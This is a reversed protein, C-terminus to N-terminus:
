QESWRNQDFTLLKHGNKQLSLYHEPTDIDRSTGPQLLVAVNLKAQAAAKLHLGYSHVNGFCTAVPLPLHTALINTGEFESDPCLVWDFNTLHQTVKVIEHTTLYPLDAMIVLAQRAGQNYIDSLAMNIEGGLGQLSDQRVAAGQKQVSQLITLSESIVLIQEIPKAQKLVAFVHEFMVMALLEREQRALSVSLRSKAKAFSHMPVVAWTSM